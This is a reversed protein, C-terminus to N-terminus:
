AADAARASQHVADDSAAGGDHVFLADRGSDFFTFAAPLPCSLPLPLLLRDAAEGLLQALWAL